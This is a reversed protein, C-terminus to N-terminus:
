GTVKLYYSWYGIQDGYREAIARPNWARGYLERGEREFMALDPLEDMRGLGRLLIAGASFPGVGPIELLARKAEAYPADRLFPEGLAAVGRVVEAIREGKARHGIADGIDAPALAALEDLPPMARLTRAGAKVRLGFRDLFRVKLKAAMKMPTRQMLVAYVAIDALSLFRVHHLGHLARVKAHMPPDTAAAAYFPRLDDGVGLIEGARRAVEANPAEAVLKQGASRLTFAHAKGRVAIAGTMADDMVIMEDACAPFRRIFALAHEFSFPQRTAIAHQM